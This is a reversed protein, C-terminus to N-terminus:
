KESCLSGQKWRLERTKMGYSREGTVLSMPEVSIVIKGFEDEEGVVAKMENALDLIGERVAHLCDETFALFVRNFKSKTRVRDRWLPDVGIYQDLAASLIMAKNM